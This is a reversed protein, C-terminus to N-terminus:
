FNYVHIYIKIDFWNQDDAVIARIFIRFIQSRILIGVTFNCLGPFANKFDSVLVETVNLNYNKFKVTVNGLPSAGWTVM